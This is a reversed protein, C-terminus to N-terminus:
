NNSGIYKKILFQIRTSYDKSEEYSSSPPCRVYHRYMSVYHILQFNKGMNSRERRGRDCRNSIGFSNVISGTFFLINGVVRKSINSFMNYKRSYGNHWIRGSIPPKSCDEWKNENKKASIPLGYTIDSATHNWYSIFRFQISPYDTDIFVFWFWM